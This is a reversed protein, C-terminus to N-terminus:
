EAEYTRIAQLSSPHDRQLRRLVAALCFVQHARYLLTSPSTPEAAFGVSTIYATREGDMLEWSFRAPLGTCVLRGSQSQALFLSHLDANLWTTDIVRGGPRAGDHGLQNNISTRLTETAEPERDSVFSPPDFDILRFVSAFYEDDLELAIWDDRRETGNFSTPGLGARILASRVSSVRNNPANGPLSFAIVRNNRVFALLREFEKPPISIESCGDNRIELCYSEIGFFYWPRNRKVSVDRPLVPNGSSDAFGGIGQM